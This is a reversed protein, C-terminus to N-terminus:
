AACVVSFPTHLAFLWVYRKRNVKLAPMQVDQDADLPADPYADISLRHEAGLVKLQDCYLVVTQRPLYRLCILVLQKLLPVKRSISKL